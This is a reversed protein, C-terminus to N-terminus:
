PSCFPAGAIAASKFSHSQPSPAAPAPPAKEKKVASSQEPERPTKPTAPSCGSGPVPAGGSNIVAPVGSIFVGTPGVVIFAGGAQLTISMGAEIVVNMGSRLYIEMGAQLARRSGVQEEVDSGAIISITGDVKENKDGSVTLHKDGKVMQMQDSKVTLHDENGVFEVLDHKVRIEEDKQAQLFILEEDKKDEFRFENIDTPSGGKSSRTKIGSQTANAPLAYPPMNDDNYVRGTIVPRDPDGELFDVIVEQGIRPINIAGWKAGALTQSVRVWCSSNEDAKSYRDWHFKLKVRAYKDTYIESGAPGVVIATQPGRVVPKPTISESRFPRSSPIAEFSCSYIDEGLSDGAGTEYVDSVIQHTASVILYERNQDDRPHASLEFLSGVSLGRANGDGHLLEHGGQLEEIRVRAYNEGEDTKLYKGPYDYVEMKAMVHEQEIASKVQLNARPTKFNFDNLACVGSRVQESIRWDYIHDRERRLTVDLPYYPLKEYGPFPQHSSASDSLVLTHKDNEHKFYYYIGEHEMLRSIYNFDSERYQVCYKWPRYDGGLSEEFDSFGQDRFIQKIIDPVKKDQFIRCNANLTLFWLWPHVTAHYAFLDGVTGSQSFGTVHGSFYRRKSDGLELRVTIRQGLLTDFKINPNESLLDIQFEFLRGLEESVKMRRFLLVDKGLPSEIEVARNAQTRNM